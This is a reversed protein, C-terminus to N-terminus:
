FEKEFSGPKTLDLGCRTCTQHPWFTKTEADEGSLGNTVVPPM